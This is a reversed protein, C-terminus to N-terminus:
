RYTSLVYIYKVRISVDYRKQLVTFDNKVIVVIVLICMCTPIHMKHVYNIQSKISIHKAKITIFEEKDIDYLLLLM